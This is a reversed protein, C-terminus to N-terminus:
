RPSSPPSQPTLVMSPIDFPKKCRGCFYRSSGRGTATVRIVVDTKKCGPCKPASLMRLTM